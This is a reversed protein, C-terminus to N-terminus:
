ILHGKLHCVYIDFILSYIYINFFIMKSAGKRKTM